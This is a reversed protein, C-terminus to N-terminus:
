VTFIQLPSAVRLSIIATRNEARKQLEREQEMEARDRETERVTM